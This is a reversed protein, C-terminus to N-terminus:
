RRQMAHDSEEKVCGNERQRDIDTSSEESKPLAPGGTKQCQSTIRSSRWVLRDVRASPIPIKMMALANRVKEPVQPFRSAV